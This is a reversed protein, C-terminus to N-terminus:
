KKKNKVKKIKKKGNLDNRKGQGEGFHKDRHEKVHDFGEQTWYRLRAGATDESIPQPVLRKKIWRRITGRNVELLRATESISFKEDMLMHVMTIKIDLGFDYRTPCHKLTREPGGHLTDCNELCDRCITLNYQAACEPDAGHITAPGEWALRKRKKGLPV